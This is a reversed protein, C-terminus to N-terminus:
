KQWKVLRSTSIALLWQILFVQYIRIKSCQTNPSPSLHLNEIGSIDILLGRYESWFPDMQTCAYSKRVSVLSCSVSSLVSTIQCKIHNISFNSIMADSTFFFTPKPASSVCCLHAIQLPIKSCLLKGSLLTWDEGIFWSHVYAVWSKPLLLTSFEISFIQRVRFTFVMFHLIACQM